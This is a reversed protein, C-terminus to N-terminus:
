PEQMALVEDRDNSPSQPPHRALGAEFAARSWTIRVMAGRGPAPRNALSLRAGSRELLTKAIFFGLGLGSAEGEKKRTAAPRTTVYPEGLNDIVEPRFGRGDDAITVVVLGQGWAASVQVEKEAFHAANEIINGLGYLVGPRRMGVPEGMEEPAAGPGPGATVVIPKGLKRYPAAADRVMEEVPLRVVLADQQEAPRQTLKLLIERCRQAQSKLLAIDEAIPSDKPVQGILESTVVTITSLPTGLEHAAAAALGDLAHLKQERALVLETANLAASMMRGEKSIRWAYLALFAICAVVAALMGMKYLYPQVLSEGPHWPLPMAHFSIFATAAVALFGLGITNRLPLTAASVTVPAVILMTFPNEIGGTLYLLAALQLIDYALTVTAFGVSLRHRAPYFIRLYVNLWASLAILMICPGVPLPFGLGVWVIGIALIQGAIALWRLRVITHLKLRSEGPTLPVQDQTGDAIAGPM